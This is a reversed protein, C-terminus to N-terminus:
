EDDDGEGVWSRGVIGASCQIRVNTQRNKWVHMEVILAYMLMYEESYEEIRTPREQNRRYRSKRVRIEPDRTLRGMLIVKNM